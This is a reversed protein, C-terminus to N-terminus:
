FIDGNNLHLKSMAQVGMELWTRAMVKCAKKTNVSAIKGMHRKMHPRVEDFFIYIGIYAIERQFLVSQM